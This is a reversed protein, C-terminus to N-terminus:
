GNTYGGWSEDSLGVPSSAAGASRHGDSGRDPLGKVEVRETYTGPILAPVDYVGATDSNVVRTAHTGENTVTVKAGPVAAGSTDTVTGTIEAETQAWLNIGVFLMSCLGALLLGRRM